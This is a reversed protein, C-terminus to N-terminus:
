LYEEILSFRKTSSDMNEFKKLLKKLDALAEVLGKAIFTRPLGIRMRRCNGQRRSKRLDTNRNLELVEEKTLEQPAM